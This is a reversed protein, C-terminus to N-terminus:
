FPSLLCHKFRCSRCYSNYEVIIKILDLAIPYEKLVEILENYSKGNINYFPVFLIKDSDM